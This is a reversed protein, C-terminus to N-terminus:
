PSAPNSGHFQRIRWGQPGRVAFITLRIPARVERGDEALVVEGFAALGIEDATEHFPVVEDWEWRLSGPQRAVATLYSRLGDADRGDGSTGILVAGDDFLEELVGLDRADVAAQLATLVEAARANV